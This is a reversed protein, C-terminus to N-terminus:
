ARRRHRSGSTSGPLLQRGLRALSRKLSSLASRRRDRPHARGTDSDAVGHVTPSLGLYPNDFQRGEDIWLAPGNRVIAPKPRARDRSM